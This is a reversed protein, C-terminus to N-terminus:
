LFSHKVIKKIPYFRSKYKRYISRHAEDCIILDFYGSTFLPVKKNEVVTFSDVRNIMTQYTSFVCSAAAVDDINTDCLNVTTVSNLHEVFSRQAQKVLVNRDALFLVRHIWNKKFLVDCLEIITLTKGAGTAMVLLAKRKHKDIFEECVKTIAIKQYARDVIKSNIEIKLDSNKRITQLNFLNELDQKSYYDFIKREPYIGDNIRIEYGNSLFIVPRRHYKKELADAYLKAQQRGKSVDVSSKKAEIIALPVGDDGFM